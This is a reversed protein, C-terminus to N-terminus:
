ADSLVELAQAGPVFGPHRVGNRAIVEDARTADGYLRYALVLAPMTQTPTYTALRALDAGRAQIDRVVAARLSRLAQFLDDGADDAEAIADMADLLEDRVAIADQQSEFEISTAQVAAEAVATGRVLQRYASQNSAQQRRSATSGTVDPWADGFRFFLRALGFANRPSDTVSSVLQKLNAVLAQAASAPTYIISVLDRNVAQIDRALLAVQDAQGQVTRAAAQVTSLVQTLLTTSAEALFVPKGAMAYRRVWADLLVKGVVESADRVAAPTDPETRPLGDTGAEVFTISFRALGGESTSERLRAQTVKVSLSGLYPHVLTGAGAREIADLLRDREVMYDPGLVFAEVSIERTKRGLDEVYPADRLPYEHLATRRGFEGEASEVHFAVGRFSATRLKDKWGM